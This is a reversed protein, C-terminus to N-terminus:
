RPMVAVFRDGPDRHFRPDLDWRLRAWEEAPIRGVTGVSFTTGPLAGVEVASLEIVDADAVLTRIGAFDVIEGATLMAAPSVESLAAVKAYHEPRVWGHVEFSQGNGTTDLVTGIEDLHDLLLPYSSPFTNSRHFTPLREAHATRLVAMFAAEPEPRTALDALLVRPTHSKITRGDPDIPTDPRVPSAVPYETWTATFRHGLHPSLPGSV